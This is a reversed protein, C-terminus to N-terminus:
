TVANLLRKIRTLDRADLQGDNYLNAAEWVPLDTEKTLLYDRLLAIDDSRFKNDNNVDGVLYGAYVDTVTCIDATKVTGMASTITVSYTGTTGANAAPITYETGTAGSIAKGDHYWQYKAPAAADDIVSIRYTQGENLAVTQKATCVPIDAKITYEAAKVDSCLLWDKPASDQMFFRINHLTVGPKLGMVDGFPIRFEVFGPSNKQICGSYDGHNFYVYNGAYYMWYQEGNETNKLQINYVESEGPVFHEASIYLYKEDNSLYLKATENEACLRDASVESPSSIEGDTIQMHNITYVTGDGNGFSQIVRKNRDGTETVTVSGLYNAGLAANWIDPNAFKVSRQNMQLVPNDGVSLKLYVNWKGPELCGPLQLLQLDESVTCSRWSRSDTRIDTRLYNGDKELLIEAKQQRIPNAFGTNEVKYKLVLSGGQEATPTMQVDRFVFRYGLHDRIFKKVNVGYYASNNVDPVDYKEGFSYQEYLNFINSNIYSLHTKYMEPIANEPLYTDYKQAYELNGSFEGGFYSTVAQNGLWTTENARNSYTGLDSDSGMYGDDYMGIRAAKSGPESAWEAINKQDIDAWKAFINPTRVTVPVPDPVVNLMLDLLEAKQAVSCYKGGWQEGYCGVFGSEVYMLIDQYDTLLGSDAIQQIHSKLMDFTAPEPNSTGDDDYRFRLAITCGNKRCNEFTGRLGAFFADDLPYDTGPTYNGAADTTGNEGNSFAGIDIFMLVLSGTPNHVPTNGPKCRYWLTSTYGMGPNLITETTEDYSIGTDALTVAASGVAAPLLSLSGTLAAAAATLAACFRKLAPKKM